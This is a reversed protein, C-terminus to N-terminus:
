NGSGRIAVRMLGVQKRYLEVMLGHNMQNEAVALLQDELDVANGDM